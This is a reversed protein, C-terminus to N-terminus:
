CMSISYLLLTYASLIKLPCMKNLADTFGDEVFSMINEDKRQRNIHRLLLKLLMLDQKENVLFLINRLALKDLSVLYEIIM